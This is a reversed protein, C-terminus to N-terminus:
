VGSKYGSLFIIIFSNLDFTHDGRSMAQKFHHQIRMPIIAPAYKESKIFRYIQDNTMMAM